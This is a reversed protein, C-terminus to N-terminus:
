GMPSAGAVPTVDGAHGMPKADDGTGPVITGHARRGTGRGGKAPRTLSTAGRSEVRPEKTEQSGADSRRGNSEREPVGGGIAPVYTGDRGDAEAIAGREEGQEEIGDPPEAVGVGFAPDVHLPVQDGRELRHVACKRPLPAGDPQPPEADMKGMRRDAIAVGNLVVVVQSVIEVLQPEVVAHEVRASVELV